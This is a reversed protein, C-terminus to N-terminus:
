RGRIITMNLGRDTGISLFDALHVHKLVQWLADDGYTQRPNLNDRLTGSFLMPDQPIITIQSCLTQM